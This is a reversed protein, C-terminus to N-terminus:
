KREFILYTMLSAGKAGKEEYRTTIWDAPADRWDSANQATWNFDPHRVAHTVMWDALGPVDTSMILQGGSKLVRAFQNLTDPRVIRRKYHKKKHWPDPNLIYMGDLTKDALSNVIMMADDMLVRVHDHPADQISKLFASMGNIFPEAGLFATNPHREMLGALHEGNGFGIELWCQNYSKDFIEEISLNATENLQDETLGLKPMLTELADIRGQNLPRGTRRGHVRKNKNDPNSM